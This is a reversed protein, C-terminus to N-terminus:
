TLQLELKQNKEETRIDKGAMKKILLNESVKATLYARKMNM